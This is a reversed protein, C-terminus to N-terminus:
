SMERRLQVSSHHHLREIIIKYGGEKGNLWKAVRAVTTSSLGTEKEIVLYPAKEMLMEAAKLRKGFEEIEKATMLDRLFHRAEDATKLALIAQIFRKNETNKWNM